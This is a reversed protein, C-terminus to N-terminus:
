MELLKKCMLPLLCMVDLEETDHSTYVAATGGLPLINSLTPSSGSIESGELSVDKSDLRQKELILSRFHTAQTIFQRGKDIEKALRKLDDSEFVPLVPDDEDTFGETLLRHTAFHGDMDGHHSHYRGGSLAALKRLFPNGSRESTTLSITHVKINHTKLLNEALMFKYNADPKRDTLVYVGLVDQLEFCKELAHFICTNGRPRLRSIWQAADQCSEDTAKVLCDQWSDISESFSIVNFWTSKPRLQEWLLSTLGKQLETLSSAMSTSADILLCVKNELITGFLRRSGSLLWQMRHIYRRLVKELQETYEELEKPQFQLHKVVGDVEVSPFITCYKASVKKQLAPVMCKQHTCDPGFVLKPLELKLKKLSYKKLWGKTSCIQEEKPLVIFPVSRRVTKSPPYERYVVGVNKGNETYFVNYSLKPQKGPKAKKNPLSLQWDKVPQAPPIDANASCPRWMLAKVSADKRGQQEEKLCMRALSLATPKPLPLKRLKPKEQQFSVVVRQDPVTECAEKRGSRQKLAEVLYACKRSYSVAKEMESVICNIDDSEIIGKDDFWHFRGNTAYALHKLVPIADNRERMDQDTDVNFFCIHLQLDSGSAAECLYGSVANVDQDPIGSTFLYLGQSDENEKDLFNVEVATKIAGMINRGGECELSLIWKWASQLNEATPPVMEMKWAKIDNGYAIINFLDKNAMQEELLLRLSHQIHIIHMSNELSVDVMLVVRKECVTGWLRRSGSTLWDIRKEYTRAVKALQIQYDYLVPPDVHVNKVTGDHWEFQMMAREHLTSSVTKQLIPVFDEVTSYANPALIQYLSLKKAKLGNKKLWETSTKPTFNPIEINLPGDHNPPKPLFMSPPMKDVESSLEQMISVLTDGLMGQKMEKVKNLVDNAKQVQNLLLQIDTSSYIEDEKWSSYLHFRGGIATALSHLCEQGISDFAVIQVQLKRGLTCQQLYDSLVESTQDPSSGVIIVLSDLEQVLLARRLALLLNCGGRPQLEQIWQRAEHLIQMNVDRATSWLGSVDTGFSMFYLQKKYCLQEDVLCLLSRLFDLRRPGCNLDSSDLLLGVNSGKIIGFMKRSGKMLWRIRQHYLEITEHIRSEFENITHASFEIHKSANNAPKMIIRGMKLLDQITLNFCEIGNNLVWEESSQTGPGVGTSKLRLLDQTQNVHTVTLGNDYDTNNVTVDEWSPRLGIPIPKLDEVFVLSTKFFQENDLIQAMNQTHSDM